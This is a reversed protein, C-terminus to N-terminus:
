KFKTPRCQYSSILRQRGVMSFCVVGRGLFLFLVFARRVVVIFPADSADAVSKAFSFEEGRTVARRFLACLQLSFHYPRPLPSFASSSFFFYSFFHVENSEGKL